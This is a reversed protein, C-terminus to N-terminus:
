RMKVSAPGYVLGNKGLLVAEDHDTLGGFSGLCLSLKGLRAKSKKEEDEGRRPSVPLRNQQQFKQQEYTKPV